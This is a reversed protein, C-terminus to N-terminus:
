HREHGLLDQNNIIDTPVFELDGKTCGIFERLRDETRQRLKRGSRLDTVLRPDGACLRGFRSPSMEARVIFAEIQDLLEM